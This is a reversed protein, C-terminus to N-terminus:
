LVLTNKFLSAEFREKHKFGFYTFQTTEKKKKFQFTVFVIKKQFLFSLKILVFMKSGVESLSFLM